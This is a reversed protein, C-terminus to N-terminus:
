SEVNRREPSAPRPPVRQTHSAVGPAGDFWERVADFRAPGILDAIENLAPMLTGPAAEAPFEEPSLSHLRALLLGITRGDSHWGRTRIREALTEGSVWELLAFPEGLVGVDEVWLVPSSVPYGRSALWRLRGFELGLSATGPGSCRLQFCRQWGPAALELLWSRRGYGGAVRRPTCALEISPLEWVDRLFRVLRDWDGNM